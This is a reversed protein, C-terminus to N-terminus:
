WYQLIASRSQFSRPFSRDLKLTIILRSFILFWFFVRLFDKESQKKHGYDIIQKIKGESIILGSIFM